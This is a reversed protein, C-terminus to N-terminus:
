RHGHKALIYEPFYTRLIYTTHSTNSISWGQITQVDIFYILGRVICMRYETLTCVSYDLSSRFCGWRLYTTRICWLISCFISYVTGILQMGASCELVYRLCEEYLEATPVDHHMNRLVNSQIVLNSSTHLTSQVYSMYASHATETGLITLIRHM